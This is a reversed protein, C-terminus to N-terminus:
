RTSHSHCSTCQLLAGTEHCHYYLAMVAFCLVMGVCSFILMVRRGFRDVGLSVAAVGVAAALPLVVAAANRHAPFIGGIIEGAFTGARGFSRSELTLARIACRLSSSCADRRLSSRPHPMGGFLSGPIAGSFSSQQAVCRGGARREAPGGGDAGDGGRDARGAGAAAGGGQRAPLTEIRHWWFPPIYLTDGPELIAETAALSAHEPFRVPDPADFDM